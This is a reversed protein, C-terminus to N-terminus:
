PHQNSPNALDLSRIYRDYDQLLARYFSQGLWLSGRSNPHLYDKGAWAPSREVWDVMSNQGGMTVFQNYFAVRNLFATTAQVRVLSDIGLPSAYKGRYRYSFDSTSVVLLDSSPFGQKFQHLISEMKRGYWQFDTQTPSSFLNLGYQFILLDYPQQRQIMQLWDTSFRALEIGTIGRFSFNDLIVGNASEFSVGYLVPTYATAQLSINKDGLSGIAARNFYPGPALSIAQKNILLSSSSDASGYLLFPQVLSLSDGVTRDALRVWDAYSSFSHGSLYLLDKGSNAKFSKDTWGSSNTAFVSQRFGSVISTIPVYGVGAGGFEAQLLQRVTQTLLDGEIMSDGFFAIRVKGKGTTKLQHLKQLFRSLVFQSTDSYFGIIRGPFQYSEFREADSLLLPQNLRRSTAIKENKKEEGGVRMVDSILNVSALPLWNFHVRYSAASICLLVGVGIVVFRLVRRPENM